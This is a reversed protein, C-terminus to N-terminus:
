HRFRFHARLGNQAYDLEVSGGFQDASAAILRSGFGARSPKVVAFDCHEDWKLTVMQDEVSWAIHIQGATRSLAGHKVANTALEHLVLAFTVAISTGIVTEPGAAQIRNADMKFPTLATAVLESLPVGQWSTRTLLAHASALADLRQTFSSAFLTPDPTRRLTQSAISQVIALTNKARHNLEDILLNKQREARRRETIDVFVAVCGRARGAQDFLPIASEHLSTTSGDQFEVDVEEGLVPVALRCARQMTLDCTALERGNKLLRFPLTDGYPGTKSANAAKPLRLM